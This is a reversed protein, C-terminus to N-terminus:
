RGSGRKARRRARAPARQELKRLAERMEKAEDRMKDVEGRLKDVDEGRKRQGAIDDVAMLYRNATRPDPTTSAARRLAAISSDHGLSVLAGAM